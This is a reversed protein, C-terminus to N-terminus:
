SCASSTPGGTGQVSHDALDYLTVHITYIDGGNLHPMRTYSTDTASGSGTFDYRNNSYLTAGGSSGSTITYVPQVSGSSNVTFPTQLIMSCENSFISDQSQSASLTGATIATMFSAGSAAMLSPPAACSSVTTPGGTATIASDAADTVVVSVRYSDGPELGQAQLAGSDAQSGAASFSYSVANNIESSTKTSLLKWTVTVNGSGDTGFNVTQSISCASASFGSSVASFSNISIHTMPGPPPPAPSGGSGGGGTDGGNSGGGSGSGSSSGGGSSGKQTTGTKTGGSASGSGAQSASKQLSAIQTTQTQNSANSGGQLSKLISLAQDTKHEQLLKKAEAIKQLNDALKQNRQLETAIAKATNPLVLFHNTGALITHAQSISGSDDLRQAAMLSSRAHLNQYGFLGGICLFIALGGCFIILKKKNMVLPRLRAPLASILALKLAM